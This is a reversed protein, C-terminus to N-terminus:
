NLYFAGIPFAGVEYEKEFNGDNSYIKMTGVGTTSQAAFIYVDDNIPNVSMGSIGSVDSVFPTESFTKSAVDFVAVAGTLNWNVDYASTILYIKSGSNDAQFVSGYSSSVNELAYVEGLENTSTNLFGIGTNESYDAYTSLMTFYLNEDKDKVFYSSVAPTTITSVSEDSLKIVAIQNVYNLAAYLKGNVIALGEPGGPLMIKKEVKRTIVNYKSIYSNPMDTYDPNAGWCSVYLYDGDAVCFRPNELDESVGNLTQEMFPNVTILQDVANGILYVSDNYSYGYQINSLLENGGNQADYFYNTMEDTKYDYKSISAGGAGFNGFNIVYCGEIEDSPFPDDPTEPKNCSNFLFAAFFLMSFLTIIKKM